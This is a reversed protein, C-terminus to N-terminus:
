TTVDGELHAVACEQQQTILGHVLICKWFMWAKMDSIVHKEYKDYAVCKTKTTKKQM